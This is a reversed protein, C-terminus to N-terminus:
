VAQILQKFKAMRLKAEQQNDPRHGFDELVQLDCNHILEVLEQSQSLPVVQDNEGHIIQVTTELTLLKQKFQSYSINAFDSIKDYFLERRSNNVGNALTKGLGPSILILDSIEPYSACYLLCPDASFSAGVLIIDALDIGFQQQLYYSTDAINNMTKTFDLDALEGESKGQGYLDIRVVNHGLEICIDKIDIYTQRDKHSKYAHIVLVTKGSSKSTPFDIVGSMNLGNSKITFNTKTKM